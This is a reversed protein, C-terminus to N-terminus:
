VGQKKIPSILLWCVRHAKFFQHSWGYKEFYSRKFVSLEIRIIVLVRELRYLIRFVNFKLMPCVLAPTYYGQGEQQVAPSYSFPPGSFTVFAPCTMLDM